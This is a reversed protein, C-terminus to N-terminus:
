PLTPKSHLSPPSYPNQSTEFRMATTPRSPPVMSRKPKSQPLGKRHLIRRPAESIGGAAESLMSCNLVDPLGTITGLCIVVVTTAPVMGSLPNRVTSNERMTGPRWGRYWHLVVALRDPSKSAIM